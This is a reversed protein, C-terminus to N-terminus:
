ITPWKQDLEIYLLTLVVLYKCCGSRANDQCSPPHVSRTTHGGLHHHVQRQSVPFSSVLHLLISHLHLRVRVLVSPKRSINRYWVLDPNSVQMAFIGVM